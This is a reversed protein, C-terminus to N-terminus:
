QIDKENATILLEVRRNAARGAATDNSAVPQASGYGVYQISLTKLGNGVLYDYVAKARQTSLPNNIADSGTSDAHGAVIIKNKPYKKLVRLLDNLTTVSTSSLAANGSEFLIDNKLTIVLRITKGNADKVKTVDAIAALEKAQKDYYNGLAGGVAAGALAGYIAGQYSKGGTNNAIVAGALAGVAAGGGAGIATRKGPTTCAALLLVAASSLIMLKRM